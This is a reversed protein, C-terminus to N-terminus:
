ARTDQGYSPCLAVAAGAAAPLAPVPAASTGAPAALADLPDDLLRAFALEAAGLLPSATGLAPQVLRVQARPASLSRAALAARIADERVALVQGLVGGLVVVEPNLVNVVAALGTGVWDAVTDLAAAATRDGAAADAVVSRVEQMGGGAGRGAAALLADAGVVTEWCGVNGCRCPAGGPDLVLHGVEGAYGGSGSLPRGDVLVGGGVGVEGALYVVHAAGVAAGRLHEALVGLDADNGVVVDSGLAASVAAGFPVDTWGLNPAFRVHGSERAVVGCVAVGVGVCRSHEAARLSLEECLRRVLDVVDEVPQHGDDRPALRVRRRDLLVGGLGVRAVEVSHVALDVALVWVQESRPVVRHSPRGGLVGPGAAGPEERVLGAAVLDATLAGITSRNLGMTTTLHARTTAGGLHLRTLLAAVNRRRLVERTVTPPLAM